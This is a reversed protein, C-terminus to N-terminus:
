NDSEEEKLSLAAIIYKVDSIKGRFASKILFWNDLVFTLHDRYYVRDIVASREAFTNGMIAIMMNLFHIMIIFVTVTHLAFLWKAQTKDGLEFGAIDSNGIMMNAVYYFSRTLTKYHIKKESGKPINDFDLQNRALIYFCVSFGFCVILLIIMFHFIDLFVM